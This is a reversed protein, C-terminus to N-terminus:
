QLLYCVYITLSILELKGWKKEWKNIKSNMKEDNWDNNRNDHFLQWIINVTKFMFYKFKM